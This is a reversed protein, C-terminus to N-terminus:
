GESGPLNPVQGVSEEPHSDVDITIGGQSAGILHSRNWHDIEEIRAPGLPTLSEAGHLRRCEAAVQLLEEVIEAHLRFHGGSGLLQVLAIGPLCAEDIGGISVTPKGDAEGVDSISRQPHLALRRELDKPETQGRACGRRQGVTLHFHTSRFGPRVGEGIRRVLVKQVELSEVGVDGQGITQGIHQLDLPLELVAAAEPPDHVPEDLSEMVQEADVLVPPFIVRLSIELELQIWAGAPRRHGKVAAVLSGEGLVNKQCKLVVHGTAPRVSRGEGVGHGATELEIIRAIQVAAPVDIQPDRDAGGAAKMTPKDVLCESKGPEPLVFESPYRELVVLERAQRGKLPAIPRVHREEELVKVGSSHHVIEPRERLRRVLEVQTPLSFYRLSEDEFGSEDLVDYSEVVTRVETDM